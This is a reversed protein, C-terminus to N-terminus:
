AFKSSSFFTKVFSFPLALLSCAASPYQFGIGALSFYEEDTVRQWNSIILLSIEVAKTQEWLNEVESVGLLILM